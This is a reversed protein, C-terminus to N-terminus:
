MEESEFSPYTVGVASTFTHLIFICPVEAPFKLMVHECVLTFRRPVVVAKCTHKIEKIMTAPLLKVLITITICWFYLHLTVCISLFGVFISLVSLVCRSM